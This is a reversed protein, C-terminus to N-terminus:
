GQWQCLDVYTPYGISIKIFYFKYVSSVNATINVLWVTADIQILAKDEIHSM